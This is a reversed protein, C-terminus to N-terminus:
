AARSSFHRDCRTGAEATRHHAARRAAQARAASVAAASPGATSRASVPSYRSSFAADLRVETHAAAVGSLGAMVSCFLVGATSVVVLRSPSRMSIEMRRSSASRATQILSGSLVHLLVNTDRLLRAGFHFPSSNTALFKALDELSVRTQSKGPSDMTSEADVSMDLL